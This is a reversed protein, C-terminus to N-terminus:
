ESKIKKIYPFIFYIATFFLVFTLHFEKFFSILTNINDWNIFKLSLGTSTSLIVILSLLIKKNLDIM